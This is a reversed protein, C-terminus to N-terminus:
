SKPNLNKQGREHVTHVHYCVQTQGFKEKSPKNFIHDVRAVSFPFGHEDIEDHDGIVRNRISLDNLDLALGNELRYM